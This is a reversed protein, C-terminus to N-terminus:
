LSGLPGFQRSSCYECSIRRLQMWTLEIPQSDEIRVSRLKGTTHTHKREDAYCVWNAQGEAGWNESLKYLSSSRANYVCMCM